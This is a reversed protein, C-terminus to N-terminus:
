TPTRERQHQREREPDRTLEVALTIDWCATCTATPGFEGIWLTAREAAAAIQSQRLLREAWELADAPDRCQQSLTWHGGGVNATLQLHCLIM